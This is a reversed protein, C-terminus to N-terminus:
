FSMGMWRHDGMPNADVDCMPSPQDRHQTALSVTVLLTFFALRAWVSGVYLAGWM